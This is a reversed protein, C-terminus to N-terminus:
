SGSLVMGASESVILLPRKTLHSLLGPSFILLPSSDGFDLGILRHHLDFGELVAIQVARQHRLARLSLDTLRDAVNSVKGVCYRAPRTFRRTRRRGAGVAFGRGQGRGFM